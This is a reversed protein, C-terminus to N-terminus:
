GAGLSADMSMPAPTHEPGAQEAVRHAAIEARSRLWPDPSALLTAMAEETTEITTGILRAGIAARGAESVQPDILPLLVERLEPKLVNELYELANARVLSDTSRVGIYADHVAARRALLGILRFIRELEQEMSHRLAAVVAGSSGLQVLLQYSRYHGAIEAALLLEITTPDLELDPQRGKLKNLSSIVRHRLPADADLLGSLLARHAAYSGIQVLVAPIERRAELPLSADVLAAELLPVADDGLAAIATVADDVIEPRALALLLCDLLELPKVREAARIAARAVDGDLDNALLELLAVPPDDIMALLRAAEARDRPDDSETMQVLMLRAAEENRAPGKAALFAVLGARISLDDFAGLEQIRQLPDFGGERALYLLAQTRVELDRDRLLGEAVLRARRDGTRTLVALADRRIGPDPHTLLAHLEPYSQPSRMGLLADLAFRVDDADQSSLRASLTEEVSRAAEAMTSHETDIRYRHISDGIAGVYARRMRWAVVVWVVALIFTMTATGAVMFGAGPLMLFGGTALGLLIGGAADAVRNVILDLANKIGQRETPPIPLYLLEYGAKDVSFRLSYDAANTLLVALFVPFLVTLASGFALALPLLLVVSAVGFTRLLAGTALVQLTFGVAGLIYNFTGFFRTLADADGGFRGNAVLSLQFNTWQTVIAVLVVLMAMLRLYPRSAITRLSESLTQPTRRRGRSPTRKKLRRSAIGVIVAALLILGALVLMMNVTGGVPEVLYRAMLGGAIAGVSAGAGILGFLRRAQRADFLSNAFSWAQVPAIVGFCNVWVYFVAPLLEFPRTTFAWWFGLVNLSFFVLTGTTALRSGVRAAIRSYVPIFLSLALPVAAYAYALAYPGYERLFLSNRLPKALLFAAVVAAVYLFSLLVPLGEGARIDLFRRVRSLM